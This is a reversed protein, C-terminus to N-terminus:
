CCRTATARATTPSGFNITASSGVPLRSVLFPSSTISMSVVSLSCPAVMMITVCEGVCASRACRIM